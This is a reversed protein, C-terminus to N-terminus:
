PKWRELLAQLQRLADLYEEFLRELDNVFDGAKVLGIGAERLQKQDKGVACSLIRRVIKGRIEQLNGGEM